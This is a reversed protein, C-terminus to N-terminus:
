GVAFIKHKFNKQNVTTVEGARSKFGPDIMWVQKRTMEDYGPYIIKEEGSLM